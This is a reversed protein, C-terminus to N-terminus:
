LIVGGKMFVLIVIAILVLCLICDLIDFKNDLLDIYYGVRMGEYFINNDEIYLNCKNLWEIFIDAQVRKKSGDNFYVKIM